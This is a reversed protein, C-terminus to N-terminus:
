SAISVTTGYENSTEAYPIEHVFVDDHMRLNNTELTQPITKPIVEYDGEYWPVGGIVQYNLDLNFTINEEEINFSLQNEEVITFNLETM